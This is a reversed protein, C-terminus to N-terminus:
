RSAPSLTSPVPAGPWSRTATVTSVAPAQVPTATIGFDIVPVDLHGSIAEPAPADVCATALRGTKESIGDFFDDADAGCTVPRSAPLEGDFSRHRDGAAM